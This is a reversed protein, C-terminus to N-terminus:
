YELLNNTEQKKISLAEICLKDKCETNPKYTM